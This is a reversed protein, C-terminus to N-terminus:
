EPRLPQQLVARLGYRLFRRQPHKRHCCGPSTPSASTLILYVMPHLAERVPYVCQPAASIYYKKSAGTFHTRLQNVFPVYSQSGSEIDLDVRHCSHINLLFVRQPQLESYKGTWSPPVSHDILPLDVLSCTGFRIPSATHFLQIPNAGTEIGVLPFENCSVIPGSCHQLLNRRWDRWGPLHDCDQGRGPM